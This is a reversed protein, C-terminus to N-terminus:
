IAVDVVVTDQSKPVTFNQSQQLAGLYFVDLTYNGHFGRLGFQESAQTMSFSASTAWEEFLLYQWREGAANLQTIDIETTHENVKLLKRGAVPTFEDVDHSSIQPQM